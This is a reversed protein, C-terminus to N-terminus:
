RGQHLQRVQHASQRGPREQLGRAAVRHGFGAGGDDHWKGSYGSIGGYNSTGTTRLAATGTTVELSSAAQAMLRNPSISQVDSRAAIGAVKAAPLLASLALVSSYRYYISGGAAMVATRLAALEADDANSVILVKVYRQGNVDRAWNLKPTTPAALVTQLDQAIKSAATQARLLPSAALLTIALLLGMLRVMPSHHSAQIAVAAGTHHTRRDIKLASGRMPEPNLGLSVMVAESSPCIQRPQGIAVGARKDQLL